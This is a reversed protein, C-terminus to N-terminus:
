ERRLVAAVSIVSDLADTDSIRIAPFQDLSLAICPYMASDETVLLFIASENFM